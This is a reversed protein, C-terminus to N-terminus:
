GARARADGLREATVETRFRCLLDNVTPGELLFADHGHSSPLTELRARPLHAAIAAQEAPPYLVDSDIAIVLAPVRTRALAHQWGGRGRGVDHTDMARTLAVYTNADFRAVLKRGQHHLYREVAFAGDALTRGFRHEFSAHSRYTCMAIMRAAALGAVPGADPAYNGDRWRPDSAIAQRQAESLAVCWASHRASVAIPAVAGVRSPFTVAWELAQMGGMSGGVILRFRRIGLADALAAQARVM